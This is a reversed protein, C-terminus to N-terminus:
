RVERIVREEKEFDTLQPHDKHASGIHMNLGGVTYTNPCHPCQARRNDHARRRGTKRGEPRRSNTQLAEVFKDLKDVCPKCGDVLFQEKGLTIPKSDWALQSEPKPNGCFDCKVVMEFERM